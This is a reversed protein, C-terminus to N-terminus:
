HLMALLTPAPEGNHQDLWVLRDYYNQIERVYVVAQGGSAFGHRTQRYYDPRSLLLLRQRVDQWRNPDGGGRATLQRADELHGIGVNYAALAMWTRDPEPIDENIRDHMKRLYAAGAAISQRPDERNAVGMERATQQTLMMLGRVGTPSVAGADWMSEQYAVAALLRWDFGTSAAATHFDDQYQPLRQDRHRIFSRAAYLDFRDHHRFFRRELKAVEGSLKMRTLYRQAAHHLRRNPEPRFFWGMSSAEADFAADLDPFLTRHLAFRNSDVLTYDARGSRVLAMLAEVGAGPLETVDLFPVDEQLHRLLEANASDAEVVIRKGALESLQRPRTEGRRYIIKHQISQYSTTFDFHRARDPTISLGAAAIDVSGAELLSFLEGLDQAEIVKLELGLEEAFGRVLEYDMGTPGHQNHYYTTPSLTTALVLEGRSHVRDLADPPSGSGTMVALATLAVVPVLLSKLQAFVMNM